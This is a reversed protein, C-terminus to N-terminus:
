IHTWKLGRKIMSLHGGSVGYRRSLVALTDTSARIQRVADDTLKANYRQIGPKNRGKRRMDASNGLATGIFLHSARVCLRNDCAHCVLANDPIPGNQLSYAFRHAVAVHYGGEPRRGTNFRGYPEYGNSATAGTWNWCDETKDVFRWFRVEAPERKGKPM